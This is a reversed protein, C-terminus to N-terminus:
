SCIKCRSIVWSIFSDSHRLNSVVLFDPKKYIFVTVSGPDTAKKVGPDPMRSVFHSFIRIRSGPHVDWIMKWSSLFLKLAFFVKIRQHPDPGPAPNKKVRSGVDPISFNPDPIRSIGSGCCQIICSLLELFDNAYYVGFFANYFVVSCV